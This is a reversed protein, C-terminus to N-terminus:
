LRVIFSEQSQAASVGYAAALQKGCGLCRDFKLDIASLKARCHPCLELLVRAPLVVEVAAAQPISLSEPLDLNDAPRAAPRSLEDKLDQLAVNLRSETNKAGPVGLLTADSRGM